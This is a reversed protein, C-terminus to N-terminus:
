SHINKPAIKKPVKTPNYSVTSLTESVNSANKVSFIRYTIIHIEALFKAVSLHKETSTEDGFRFSWYVEIRPFNKQCIDLVFVKVNCQEDGLFTTLCSEDHFRNSNGLEYPMTVRDIHLM